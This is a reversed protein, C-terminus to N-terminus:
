YTKCNKIVTMIIYNIVDGSSLEANQVVFTATLLRTKLGVIGELAADM